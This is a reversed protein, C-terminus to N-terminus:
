EQEKEVNNDPRHQYPWMVKDTALEQAEAGTLLTPEIQEWGNDNAIDIAYSRADVESIFPGFVDTHDYEPPETAVVYWAKDDSV